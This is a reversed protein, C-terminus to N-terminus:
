PKLASKTCSSLRVGSLFDKLVSAKIAYNVNQPLQGSVELMTLDNLRSQIVGIVRGNRDM